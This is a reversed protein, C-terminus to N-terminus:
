REKQQGNGDGTQKGASRVQRDEEVTLQTSYSDTQRVAEDGELRDGHRRKLRLATFNHRVKSVRVGAM